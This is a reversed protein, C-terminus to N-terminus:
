FPRTALEEAKSGLTEPALFRFDIPLEPHIVQWVQDNEEELMTRLIENRRAVRAVAEALADVNLPGKLQLRIRM